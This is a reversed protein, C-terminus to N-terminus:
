RLNFLVIIQYVRPNLKQMAPERSSHDSDGSVANLERRSLANEREPTLRLLIRGNKSFPAALRGNKWSTVTGSYDWGFGALTFPGGNIREIEQLSSGLSIGEATKWVSKKGGIQISKPNRKNVPDKWTIELKREPDDAFLVTGPETQGEGVDVDASM